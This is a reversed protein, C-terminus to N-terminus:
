GTLLIAALRPVRSALFIRMQYDDGSLLAMPSVRSVGVFLSVLSAVFLLALGAAVFGVEPRLGPRAGDVPEAAPSTSAVVSSEGPHGRHDPAGRSDLEHGHVLRLRGRLGRPREALRDDPAGARQRAGGARERGGRWHRRLP